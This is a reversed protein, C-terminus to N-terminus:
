SAQAIAPREARRLRGILTRAIAWALIGVGLGLLGGVTIDSPTHVRLISRSYCVAAAWPLLAYFMWLRKTALYTAGVTLFFTAFFMASFAHGSPFSYGTEDVWHAEISSSLAVPRPASRLVRALLESRVQKPGSEYFEEPTMGLPGTGNEGALWVVNPRPVVFQPKIFYVTKVVGGGGCVVGVLVIIIAKTWRRPSRIGQRAILLVLMAAAVIPAGVRGGSWSLWYALQSFTGTLDFYPPRTSDVFPLLFTLPVLLSTALVPLCARLCVQKTTAEYPVTTPM